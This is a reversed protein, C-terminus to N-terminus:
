QVGEGKASAYPSEVLTLDFSREAVHVRYCGASLGQLPIYLLQRGRKLPLRLAQRVSDGQRFTMPVGKQLADLPGEAVVEVPVVRADTFCVPAVSRLEALVVATMRIKRFNRFHFTVRDQHQYDAENINIGLRAIQPAIGLDHVNVNLTFWQGIVLQDLPLLSSKGQVDYFHFMAPRRPLHTRSTEVLIDVAFRDVASWPQEEPKLHMYMRPWGIPYAKEGGYFDVPIEMKLAPHGNTGLPSVSLTCEAPDWRQPDTWADCATVVLPAEAAGLWLSLGAFVGGVIQKKM